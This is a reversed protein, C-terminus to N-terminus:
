TLMEDSPIGEMTSAVISDDFTVDASNSTKRPRLVTEGVNFAEAQLPRAADRLYVNRSSREASPWQRKTMSPTVPVNKMSNTLNQLQFM